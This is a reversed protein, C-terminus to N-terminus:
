TKQRETERERVKMETVGDQEDKCALMTRGESRGGGCTLFYGSANEM